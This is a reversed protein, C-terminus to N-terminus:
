RLLWIIGTCGIDLSTPKKKVTVIVRVLPLVAGDWVITQAALQMPETAAGSEVSTELGGVAQRM